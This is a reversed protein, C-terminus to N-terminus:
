TNLTMGAPFEIIDFSLISEIAVIDAKPIAKVVGRKDVYKKKQFQSTITRCRDLLVTPFLDKNVSMQLRDINYLMAFHADEAAAHRYTVIYMMIAHPIATM